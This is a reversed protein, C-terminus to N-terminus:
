ACGMAVCVDCKCGIADTVTAAYNCSFSVTNSQATAGASWSHSAGGSAAAPIKAKRM